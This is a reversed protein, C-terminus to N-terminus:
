PANGGTRRLQRRVCDRLAVRIQSLRTYVSQVTMKLQSAIEDASMACTYRLELMRRSREPLKQLCFELSEEYSDIRPELELLSGEIKSVTDVDFIMRRDRGRKRYYQLVRNRAVGVAWELFPREPDYKDFDKAIAVATDQLVDDADHLVPVFIRVYTRLKDYSEAWLTAFDCRRDSEHQERGAMVSSIHAVGEPVKVGFKPM